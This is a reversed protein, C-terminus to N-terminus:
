KMVIPKFPLHDLEGNVQKLCHQSMFGVKMLVQFYPLTHLGEELRQSPKIKNKIKKNVDTTM